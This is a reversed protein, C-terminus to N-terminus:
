DIVGGELFDPSQTFDVGVFDYIKEGEKTVPNYYAEIGASSRLKVDSTCLGNIYKIDNYAETGSFTEPDFIKVKVRWYGDEIFMDIVTGVTTQDILQYDRPGVADINDPNKPKRRSKHTISCFATLDQKRKSWTSSNIFEQVASEKFYFGRQSKKNLKCINITKIIDAM